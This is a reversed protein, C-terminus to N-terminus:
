GLEEISIRIGEEECDPMVGVTILAIDSTAHIMEADIMARYIPDLTPWISHSAEPRFRGDKRPKGVFFTVALAACSYDGRRETNESFAKAVEARLEEHAELYEARGRASGVKNLEVSPLMTVDFRDILRYM